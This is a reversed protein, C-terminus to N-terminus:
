GVGSRVNGGPGTLFIDGSDGAPAQANAQGTGFNDNSFYVQGAPLALDALKHPQQTIANGNAFAAWAHYETVGDWPDNVRVGGADYDVALMAHGSTGTMIPRGARIEGYILQKQADNPGGGGFASRASEYSGAWPAGPVKSKIATPADNWWTGYHTLRDGNHMGVNADGTDMPSAFDRITQVEDLVNNWWYDHAMAASTPVCHWGGDRFVEFDGASFDGVKTYDPKTPDTSDKPVTSWDMVKWNDGGLGRYIKNTNGVTYLQDYKLQTVGDPKFLDTLVGTFDSDYANDHRQEWERVGYPRAEALGCSLVLVAAACVGSRVHLRQNARMM